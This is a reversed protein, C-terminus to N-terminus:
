GDLLDDLRSLLGPLMPADPALSPVSPPSGRTVSWRRGVLARAAQAQAPRAFFFGQARSCGLVRLTAVEDQTSVGEAVCEIGLGRSLSVISRVIATEKGGEGLRSVFERDIKIADVPLRRLYHLSSLGTGFDDVDIAIGMERLGSLKRSAMDLDKLLLSETIEVRLRHGPVRAERLASEFHRVLDDQGFERASLNVSVSLPSPAGAVELERLFGCASRVVQQGLPVILGTDEALSIFDGPLVLGRVPHDWRALAEFGVLAGTVLCVTPQYHASLQNGDDLARRLDSEAQLRRRTEEHIGPHFVESQGGGRAKAVHMTADADRLLTAASQYSPDVPAIGVSVTVFVEQGAVEFPLRLAEEIRAAFQRASSLENIGGVLVAFTDSGLRALTDLRRLCQSVRRTFEQLLQDGEAHGYGDNVLRFRDLDIVFVASTCHGTRHADGLARDLRELFAQRGSVGTLADHSAQHQLRQELRRYRIELEPATARESARPTESTPEVYEPYVLSRWERPRRGV